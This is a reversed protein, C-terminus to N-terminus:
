AYLDSRTLPVNSCGRDMKALLTQNVNTRGAEFGYVSGTMYLLWTRYVSEDTLRIAEERHSALRTVWHRLTLAYHERLNEVDRVEFGAEEAMLNVM